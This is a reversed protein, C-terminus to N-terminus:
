PCKHKPSMPFHEEFSGPRMDAYIFTHTRKHAHTRKISHITVCQLRYCNSSWQSTLVIKFRFDVLPVIARLRAHPLSSLLFSVRDFLATMPQHSPKNRSHVSSFISLFLFHFHFYTANLSPSLCFYKVKTIQPLLIIQWVLKM